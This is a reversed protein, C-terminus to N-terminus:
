ATLGKVAWMVAEEVKTKAISLERSSGCEDLFAILANGDTKVATIRAQDLASLRKTAARAPDVAM